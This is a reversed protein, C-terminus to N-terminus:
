ASSGGAGGAPHGVIAHLGEILRDLGQGVTEEDLAGYSIRLACGADDGFASGPVVAVRHDRVLREAVTMADLNTRPRAYVYFAGRPAALDHVTGSERLATVIRRRVRDLAGLHAAAHSRGIGLAAIAARQSVVPACIVLTDQIKAVADSLVAPVVLYGVRWGAMGYAKSLTYVSVTHGAAGDISGPSFHRADYTFYEYTEDHIHFAGHARCLANVARLSPEDYVAGTPNNPSITVVARTRPTMARGIAEVDLAGSGTTPVPITTASAMGIAMDHNFYYPAPLIVEDGPDVIALLATMFALNGGATVVVERAPEVAIGNDRRLKAAVAARLEPLGEIASYAHDEPHGGIRRAAALAEAPPGYSVIGQGLSITGPSEAIWQSVVPIVPAQVAALRASARPIM